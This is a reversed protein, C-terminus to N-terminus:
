PTAKTAELKARVQAVFAEADFGDLSEVSRAYYDTARGHWGLWAHAAHESLFIGHFAGSPQKFIVTLKLPRKM